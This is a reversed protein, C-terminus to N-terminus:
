AAPFLMAVSLAIAPFALPRALEGALLTQGATYKGYQPERFIELQQDLLNVLWYDQIGAAAYLDAKESRDGALSSEAVEIVLLVDAATPRAKSYDRRRVWALDPEPASDLEVFGISNQVRVWVEDKSLIQFSWENLFDVAAEHRPGIPNMEHLVGHILEIRRRKLGDFVGAAVIQDYEEISLRALTSM